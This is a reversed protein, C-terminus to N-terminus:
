KEEKLRYIGNDNEIIGEIEMDSLLNLCKRIEYNTLSLIEDINFRSNKLYNYIKKYKKNINKYNKRRNRIQFQPYYNLIDEIKTTCIAGKKILNNVGVGVSSDLKGPIAFVKKGQEIAYRATISTGSYYAAEIVLIGESLASIIRNRKPFNNKNFAINAEQETLILGDKEIIDKFLKINEKPYINDFGTGLVAITKGGNEISIKHAITDCGVAMGSVIPIDRLAIEQSFSTCNKIGYQTINRTGVIGFCEQYLLDKNGIAYLYKPSNNINKLKDPFEQHNIKFIKYNNM